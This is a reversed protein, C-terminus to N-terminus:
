LESYDIQRLSLYYELLTIEPYIKLTQMAQYSSQLPDSLVHQIDARHAKTAMDTYFIADHCIQALLCTEKINYHPSFFMGENVSSMSFCIFPVLSNSSSNWLGHYLAESLWTDLNQLATGHLESAM